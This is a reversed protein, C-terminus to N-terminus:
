SKGKLSLQFVLNGEFVAIRKHFLIGVWARVAGGGGEMKGGVGVGLGESGGNLGPQSFVLM